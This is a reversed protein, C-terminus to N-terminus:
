WVCVIHIFQNTPDAHYSAYFAFSKELWTLDKSAKSM